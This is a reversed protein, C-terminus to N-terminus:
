ATLACGQYPHPRHNSDVWAWWLTPGYSLRSLMPKALRPDATRVRRAGGTRGPSGQGRVSVWLWKAITKPRPKPRRPQPLGAFRSKLLTSPAFRSACGHADATLLLTRGGVAHTLLLPHTITANKAAEGETTNLRGTISTVVPTRTIPDLSCACVTSATAVVPSSLRSLRRFAAPLQCVLKSGCIDSHPFGCRLTYGYSFVYTVSAFSSFQFM